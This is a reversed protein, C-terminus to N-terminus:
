TCRAPSGPAPSRSARRRLARADGDPRADRARRAHDRHPRLRGPDPRRGQLGDTDGPTTPPRRRRVDARRRSRGRPGLSRLVPRLSRLIRAVAEPHDRGDRGGHEAADGTGCPLSTCSPSSSARRGRPRRGRLAATNVLWGAVRASAGGVADHVRRRSHHVLDYPAHLSASPGELTTGGVRRPQGPPHPRRGLADRATGVVSIVRLLQADGRVLALGVRQSGTSPQEALHLGVDDM